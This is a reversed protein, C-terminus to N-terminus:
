NELEIKWSYFRWRSSMLITLLLMLLLLSTMSSAVVRSSSSLGPENPDFIIDPYEYNNDSNLTDDNYGPFIVEPGRGRPRNSFPKDDDTFVYNGDGSGSGSGSGDGSGDDIVDASLCLM